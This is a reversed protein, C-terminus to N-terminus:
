KEKEEIKSTFKRKFIEEYTKRMDDLCAKQEDSLPSPLKRLSDESSKHQARVPTSKEAPESSAKKRLKRTPTKTPTDKSSNAKKANQKSKKWREATAKAAKRKVSRSTRPEKFIEKNADEINGDDVQENEVNTSSFIVDDESALKEEEDEELQEHIIFDVSGDELVQLGRKAMKRLLNIKDADPLFKSKFCKSCDNKDKADVDHTSKLKSLITVFIQRIKKKGLM